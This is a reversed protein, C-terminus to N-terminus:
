ASKLRRVRARAGILMLNLGALLLVLLLELGELASGGDGEPPRPTRPLAEQRPTHVGLVGGRSGRDSSAGDPDAAPAAAPAGLNADTAPSVAAANIARVPEECRVPECALLRFRPFGGPALAGQLRGLEAIAFASLAAAAAFGIVAPDVPVADIIGPATSIPQVVPDAAPAATLAAAADPLTATSPAPGLVTGAAAEVAPAVSGAPAVVGAMTGAAAEVAPAVPDVVAPAVSGLTGAAAEVAPAVPDVVAPAVGGATGAAAEVAPAVPESVARVVGNATGAAAEV